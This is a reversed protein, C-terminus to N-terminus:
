GGQDSGALDAEEVVVILQTIRPVGKSQQLQRTPQKNDINGFLIVM